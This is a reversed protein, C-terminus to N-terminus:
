VGPARTAVRRAQALLHEPNHSLHQYTCALQSPNSHGMLVAVTLADVGSQLANTAWAHRLGYLSYRPALSRALRGTLKRRAEVCLDRHSKEVVLGGSRRTASLTAAFEAIEKDGISLGQRAVEARGMRTQIRDFACNVSLPTWPAGASNRFLLGTPHAEALRRTIRLADDTLYV